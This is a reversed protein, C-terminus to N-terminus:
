ITCFQSEFDEDFVEYDITYFERVGGDEWTLNEDERAKEYAEEATEADIEVTYIAYADVLREVTFKPM